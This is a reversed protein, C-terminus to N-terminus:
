EPAGTELPWGQDAWFYYGEDLVAVREFGEALLADAAQGSVAHPCGCYTIVFYDRPLQDIYTQIDYFPISISGALHSDLYDARPRADLLVFAEGGQLASHVDAAAAFRGERLQFDAAVGGENVVAKTLDPEFPEPIEGSVPVAWSRILVVLDDITQPSVQGGYAPMATGPRGHEIAYRIFGDSASELFWPNNLSIFSSGEGEDGHCSKCFAGYAARGRMAAGEVVRDHVDVSPETQWQRVYAVVDAVAQDDLPGANRVGWPSMPTGPRGEVIATHIFEDTATTLFGQNALANAADALYGEGEYGHCFGCYQDYLPAGDAANGVVADIEPVVSDSPETGSDLLAADVINVAADVGATAQSETDACGGSIGLLALLLLCLLRKHNLRSMPKQKNVQKLRDM